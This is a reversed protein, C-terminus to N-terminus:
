IIRASRRNIICFDVNSNIFNVSDERTILASKKEELQVIAVWYQNQGLQTKILTFILANPGRKVAATKSGIAANLFETKTMYM